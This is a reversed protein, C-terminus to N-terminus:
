IWLMRVSSVIDADNQHKLALDCLFTESLGTDAVAKPRAPAAAPPASGGGGATDPPLPLEAATEDVDDFTSGAGPDSADTM